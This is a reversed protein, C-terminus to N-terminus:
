STAHNIIATYHRHPADPGSPVIFLRFRGLVPHEFTYTGQKLSTPHQPRFRMAFPQNPATSTADTATVKACVFHLIGSPAHVTFVSGVFFKADDLSLRALMDPSPADTATDGAAWAISRFGATASAAAMMTSLRFFGRRSIGM